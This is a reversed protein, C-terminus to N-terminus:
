ALDFGLLELVAIAIRFGDQSTIKEEEAYYGDVLAFNLNDKNGQRMIMLLSTFYTLSIALTIFFM